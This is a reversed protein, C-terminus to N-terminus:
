RPSLSITTNPRHLSLIVCVHITDLSHVNMLARNGKGTSKNAGKRNELDFVRKHGQTMLDKEANSLNEIADQTELAENLAKRLEGGQEASPVDGKRVGIQIEGSSVRKVFEPAEDAPVHKDYYSLISAFSDRAKQAGSNSNQGGM